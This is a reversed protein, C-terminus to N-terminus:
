SHSGGAHTARQTGEERSAVERLVFPLGLYFWVMRNDNINGTHIMQIFGVMLLALVVRSFDKRSFIRDTLQRRTELFAAGVLGVVALAALIGTESSIELFVNHPWSYLSPNPSFTPYGGLGVGLM